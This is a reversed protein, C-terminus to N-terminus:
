FFSWPNRHRRRFRQKDQIVKFTQSALFREKEVEKLYFIISKKAILEITHRGQTDNKWCRLKEESQNNLDKESDFGEAKSFFDKWLCISVARPSAWVIDIFDECHEELESLVCVSPKIWFEIDDRSEQASVVSNSFVITLATVWFFKICFVSDRKIIKIYSFVICGGWFVQLSM